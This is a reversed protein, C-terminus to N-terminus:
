RIAPVMLFEILFYGLPLTFLLSDLRDFVGGHGPVLHSSDKVGAERKLLSEALDGVQAAVSILAGFLLAGATTFGLSAVEPLVFRGIALALLMTTVLGGIAGEVTKGPSVAPILKRRGFTRGVFYAGIDSGWTLLVPLMVLATGGLADVSFRHYRLAYAFSLMGGIYLVGFVTIATAALPHGEVGRAWIAIALLGLMVLALASLPVNLVRLFHGHVVLPVAASLAIGAGAIPRVGTHGAMRYLEWSALAAAIGLLSALWADGLFIILITVPAAIVAFLVRLTLESM